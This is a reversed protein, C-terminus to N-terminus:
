TWRGQGITVLHLSYDCYIICIRNSLHSRSFALFLRTAELVSRGLVWREHGHVDLLHGESVLLDRLRQARKHVMWKPRGWQWRGHVVAPVRWRGPRRDVQALSSRLVRAYVSWRRHRWMRVVTRWWWHLWRGRLWWRKDPEGLVSRGPFWRRTRKGCEM